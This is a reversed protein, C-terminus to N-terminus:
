PNRHWSTIIKSSTVNQSINRIEERTLAFMFDEPFRKINRRVAQNLARTEVGYLRDLDSYLLVKEDRLFIIRSVIAEIPILDKM